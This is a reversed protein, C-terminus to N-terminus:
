IHILSLVLVVVFIAVIPSLTLWKFRTIARAQTLQRKPQVRNESAHDGSAMKKGEFLTLDFPCANVIVCESFFSGGRLPHSM